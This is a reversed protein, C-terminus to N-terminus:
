ERYNRAQDLGLVRICDTALTMSHPGILVAAAAPLDGTRGLRVTIDSPRPGVDPDVSGVAGARLADMLAPNALSSRRSASRGIGTVSPIV